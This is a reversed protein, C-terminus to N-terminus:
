NQKWQIWIYSICFYDFVISTICYDGMQIKVGCSNQIKM